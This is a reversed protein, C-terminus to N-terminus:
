VPCSKPLTTIWTGTVSLLSPPTLWVRCCWIKSVPQRGYPSPGKFCLLFQIILVTLLFTISFRVLSGTEVVRTVIVKAFELSAQNCLGLEFFKLRSAEIVRTVGSRNELFARMSKFFVTELMRSFAPNQSVAVLEFLNWLM